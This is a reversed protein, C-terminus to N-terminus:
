LSLDKTTIIFVEQKKPSNIIIHKGDLAGLCNPFQWKQEFDNAILKWEPVSNPMKM